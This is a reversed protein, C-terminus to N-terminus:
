ASCPHYFGLTIAKNIVPACVEFCVREVAGTFLTTLLRGNHRMRWKAFYQSGGRRPDEPRFSGISASLAFFNPLGPRSPVYHQVGVKAPVADSPALEM